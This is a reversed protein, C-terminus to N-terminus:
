DNLGGLNVEIVKDVKMNELRTIEYQLDLARNMDTENSQCSKLIEIKKIAEKITM